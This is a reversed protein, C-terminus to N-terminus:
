TFTQRAIMQIPKERAISMHMQKTWSANPMANLELCKRRQQGITQMLRTFYESSM